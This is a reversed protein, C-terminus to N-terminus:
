KDPVPVLRYHEIFAVGNENGRRILVGRSTFGTVHFQQGLPPQKLRLRGKLRGAQDFATWVEYAAGPEDPDRLWVQGEPDAAVTSFFPRRSRATGPSRAMKNGKAAEFGRAADAEARSVERLPDDTRMVRVLRGATDFSRVESFYADAFYWLQGSAALRPAGVQRIKERTLHLKLLTAVESGDLRLRRYALDLARTAKDFEVGEVLFTGDDFCSQNAMHGLTNPFTRVLSATKADIIAIRANNFDEAVVTDGRTSCTAALNLFETPGSGSRGLLARQVGTADFFHIRTEETVVLGLDSLLVPLLAGKSPELEDEPRTAPGGVRLTPEAALAFEVPAKSRAPNTVIEVEAPVHDWRTDAKSTCALFGATAAMAVTARWWYGLYPPAPSLTRELRRAGRTPHSTHCDWRYPTPVITSGNALTNSNIM